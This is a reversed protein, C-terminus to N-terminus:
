FYYHDNNRYQRRRRPQRRGRQDWNSQRQNRQKYKSRKPQGHFDAENGTTETDEVPGIEKEQGSSKETEPENWSKLNKDSLIVDSIEDPSQSRRKNEHSGNQSNEKVSLKKKQPKQKTDTAQKNKESNEYEQFSGFSRQIIGAEKKKNEGTTERESNQKQKPEENSTKKPEDGFKIEKKVDFHPTAVQNSAILDQPRRNFVNKVSPISVASMNQSQSQTNQAVVNMLWQINREISSLRNGIQSLVEMLDGSKISNSYNKEHFTTKLFSVENGGLERIHNKFEKSTVHNTEITM